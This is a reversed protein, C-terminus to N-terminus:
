LFVASWVKSDSFSSIALRFLAAYDCMCARQIQNTDHAQVGVIYIEGFILMTLIKNIM